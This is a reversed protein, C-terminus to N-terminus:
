EGKSELNEWDQTIQATKEIVVITNNSYWSAGLVIFIGIIIGAIM